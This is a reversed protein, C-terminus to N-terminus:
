EGLVTNNVKEPLQAIGIKAKDGIENGRFEIQRASECERALRPSM